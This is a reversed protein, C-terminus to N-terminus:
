PMARGGPPQRSELKYPRRRRLSPRRRATKAGRDLARTMRLSARRNRTTAIAFGHFGLSAYVELRGGYTRAIESAVDGADDVAAAENLEVLYHRSFAGTQQAHGTGAGM